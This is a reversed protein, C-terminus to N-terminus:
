AGIMVLINRKLGNVDTYFQGAYKRLNSLFTLKVTDETRAIGNDLDKMLLFKEKDYIEKLYKVKVHIM